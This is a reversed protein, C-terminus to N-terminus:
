TAIVTHLIEANVELESRVCWAENMNVECSDRGHVWRCHAAGVGADRGGRGARGAGM